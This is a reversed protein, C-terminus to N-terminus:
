ALTYDIVLTVTGTAGTAPSNITGRILTDATYKYLRGAAALTQDQGGARGITSAAILRDTDGADGIDITVTPSGGTDIDTSTLTIGLITANQPIYFFELIDGNAANASLTVTAYQSTEAINGRAPENNTIRSSKYTAM